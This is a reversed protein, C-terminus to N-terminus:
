KAMSRLFKVLAGQKQKCDIYAKAVNIREVNVDEVTATEPDDALAPDTCPAMLAESPLVAKAM